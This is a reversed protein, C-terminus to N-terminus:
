WHDCWTSSRRIWLGLFFFFFVFNWLMCSIHVFSRTFLHMVVAIVSFVSSLGNLSCWYGRRIQHFFFRLARLLFWRQCWPLPSFGSPLGPLAGTVGWSVFNGGGGGWGGFEGVRWEPFEDPLLSQLVVAKNPSRGSAKLPGGIVTMVLCLCVRQIMWPCRSHIEGGFVYHCLNDFVLSHDHNQCFHFCWACIFAEQVIHAMM